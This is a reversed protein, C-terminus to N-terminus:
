GGAPIPRVRVVDGPRLLAAPLGVIPDTIVAYDRAWVGYWPEAHRGTRQDHPDGMVVAAGAFTDGSGISRYHDMRGALMPCATISYRFCEPHM